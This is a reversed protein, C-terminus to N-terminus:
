ISKCFFPVSVVNLTLIKRKRFSAVAKISNRLTQKKKRERKKKKKERGEEQLDALEMQILLLCAALGASLFSGGLGGQAPRLSAPSSEGQQQSVKHQQQEEM